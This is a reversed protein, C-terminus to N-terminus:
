ADDLIYAAKEGRADVPFSSHEHFIRWRGKSKRFCFTTRFWSRVSPHDVAMGTMRSLFMAVALDGSIEIRLDKRECAIPNPFYPFCANWLAALNDYGAIQTGIDFMTVNPDYCERLADLDKDRLASEWRAFAEAIETAAPKADDNM